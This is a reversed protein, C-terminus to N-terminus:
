SPAEPAVPVTVADLISIQGDPPADPAPAAERALKCLEAVNAVTVTVKSTTDKQVEVSKLVPYCFTMMKALIDARKDPSLEPLLEVLKTLPEWGLTILKDLVATSSRNVSGKPRGPGPIPLGM